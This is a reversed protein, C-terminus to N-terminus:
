VGKVSFPAPYNLIFLWKPFPPFSPNPDKIPKFKGAEFDKLFKEETYKM